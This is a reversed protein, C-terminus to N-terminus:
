HIGCRPGLQTACSIHRHKAFSLSLLSDTNSCKHRQRMELCTGLFTDVASGFEKRDSARALARSVERYEHERIRAPKAGKTNFPLWHVTKPLQYREEDSMPHSSSSAASTEAGPKKETGRKEVRSPQDIQSPPQPITASTTSHAEDAGSAKLTSLFQRGFRQGYTSPPEALANGDVSVPIANAVLAFFGCALIVEPTRLLM